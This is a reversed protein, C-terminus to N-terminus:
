KEGLVFLTDRVGPVLCMLLYNAIKGTKLLFNDPKIRERFPTYSIFYKRDAIKWGTKKLLMTVESLTYERNHRHYVNNGKGDNEFFVDTPYMTNEGMLLKGRNISRVINPTTVMLKGRKKTIRYIERLPFVPSSPLHEIVENCLVLDFFNSKYPFKEKEINLIAINKKKLPEHRSAIGYVNHGWREMANGIHYPFCGVDLITLQKGSAIREVQKLIFQYRVQHILFYAKEEKTEM